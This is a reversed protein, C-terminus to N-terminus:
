DVVGLSAAMWAADQQRRWQVTILIQCLETEASRALEVSPRVPSTHIVFVFGATLMLGGYQTLVLSVATHPRSTSAPLLAVAGSDAYFQPWNVVDGGGSLRRLAV